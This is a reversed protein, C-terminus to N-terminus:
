DIKILEIVQGDKIKNEALTQFRMVANGNTVFNNNTKRYEPYYKYLEDEIKVFTDSPSCKIKTRIKQDSSIFQVEIIENFKKNPNIQNMQNNILNINNNMMNMNMNNNNMNNMMMNNNFNNNNMMMNNNNMMNNNFNNNNIFDNQNPINMNNGNNDMGFNNFQNNNNNNFNMNLNQNMNNNMNNFQIPFNNNNQFNMNFNNNQFNNNNNNMNNDNFNNQFNNQNNFNQQMFSKEIQNNKDLQTNKNVSTNIKILKYFLVIPKKNFINEKGDKNFPHCSMNNPNIQYLINTNAEIFQNFSYSLNVGNTAVTNLGINFNNVQTPEIIVILNEPYDLVKTVITSETETGNCFVCSKGKLKHESQTTFLKQFILDEQPNKIYIYEAYYFYFTKMGCKKCSVIEEKPILFLKQIINGKRHEKMFRNLGKEEDYNSSQDNYEKNAQFNPDIGTLIMEFVQQYNKAKKINQIGIKSIIINKFAPFNINKNECIYNTLEGIQYFYAIVPEIILEPNIYTKSNM